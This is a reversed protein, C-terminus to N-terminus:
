RLVRAYAQSTSSRCSKLSVVPVCASLCVSVCVCLCVCVRTLVHVCAYSSCVRGASGHLLGVQTMHVQLCREILSQVHRIYQSAMSSGPKVGGPGPAQTGGTVPSYARRQRAQLQAVAAPVGHHGLPAQLMNTDFSTAPPAFPTVAAAGRSVHSGASTAAAAAFAVRNARRGQEIAARVKAVAAHGPTAAPVATRRHPQMPQRRNHRNAALCWPREAARWM